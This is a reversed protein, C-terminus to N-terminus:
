SLKHVMFFDSTNHLVNTVAGMVVARRELSSVVLRPLAPITGEIRRLIPEILLDASRTVGGGLVILEPDFTVTLNAIAVALCDVTEDILRSAWAQGQRAADFVDEALLRALEEPKRRGKLAQRAREAIGTGSAITELVGFEQYPKGLFERDPLMNGIEGSAEHSGRYLVGDIIIGAGIGSGITIFVMNPVNQEAGFWLEGLAAFNVDNDVAIPLNYREVLKAKVPYDHWKLSYAWTVIGEIHRTVGPAGVGIGRIRRGQIKPNALLTDILKTLQQFNEDGSTGCRDIDVEDLINGAVDATAGFMKTGGLDIGIVVQGEPNFELLARRRGGTWQTSGQPRVLDEKILDDAVRMVTPLSVDLREAIANRSVPGERRITELIASRNISRMDQATITRPMSM